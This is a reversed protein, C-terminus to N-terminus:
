AVFLIPVAYPLWNVNVDEVTLKGTTVVAATVDTERVVATEPPLTVEEPPPATVALPTQQLIDDFGVIDPECEDSPVPM